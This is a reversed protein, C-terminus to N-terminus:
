GIQRAINLTLQEGSKTGQYTQTGAPSVVQLEAVVTGARLDGAEWTFQFFGDTGAPITAAKVLPSDDYGIHLTIDWGTIDEPEDADNTITGGIVPLTDGEVFDIVNEMM